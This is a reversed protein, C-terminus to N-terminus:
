IAVTALPKSSVVEILELVIVFGSNYVTLASDHLMCLSGLDQRGQKRACLWQPEKWFPSGLGLSLLSTIPRSPLTLLGGVLRLPKCRLCPITVSDRQARTCRLRAEVRMIYRALM